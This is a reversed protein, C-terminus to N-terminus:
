RQYKRLTWSGIHTEMLPKWDVLCSPTAATNAEALFIATTGSSCHISGINPPLIKTPSTLSFTQVTDTVVIDPNEQQVIRMVAATAPERLFGDAGAQLAAYTKIDKRFWQWGAVLLFGIFIVKWVRNYEIRLFDFSKWVLLLCIPTVLSYYRAVCYAPYQPDYLSGQRLQTVVLLAFTLGQFILLYVEWCALSRRVVRICVGVLSGAVVCAAVLQVPGHVPSWGGLVSLIFGRTLQGIALVSGHAQGFATGGTAVWRMLLSFFVLALFTFSAKIMSSFSRPTSLLVWAVWIVPLIVGQYRLSIGIIALGCALLHAPWKDLPRTGALFIGAVVTGLLQDTTTSPYTLFGPLGVVLGTVIWNVGIKRLFLVWLFVGLFRNIYFVCTASQALSLGVKAGVVLLLSYGPPFWALRHLYNGPMEVTLDQARTHHLPVLLDGHELLSDAAIVQVNQDGSLEIGRHFIAWFVLTIAVAFGLGSYLSTQRFKLLQSAITNM